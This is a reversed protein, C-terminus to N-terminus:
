VTKDTGLLRTIVQQSPGRTHASTEKYKIVEHPSGSTKTLPPGAGVASKRQHQQQQKLNHPSLPDLIGIFAPRHHGFMSAPKTADHNKLPGM